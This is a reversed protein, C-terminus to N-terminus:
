GGSQGGGGAAGGKEAQLRRDSNEEVDTGTVPHGVGGRGTEAAGEMGPDGQEKGGALDPPGDPADSM